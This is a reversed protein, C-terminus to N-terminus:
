PRVLHTAGLMTEVITYMNSVEGVALKETLEFFNLCTGCTLIATGKGELARFDDLLESGECTLHAAENYVLIADILTEQQTLAYVFSKMLVDGLERSSEGMGKSSLVVVTEHKKVANEIKNNM